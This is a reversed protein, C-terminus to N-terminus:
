DSVPSSSSWELSAVAAAYARIRSCRLADPTALEKLASVEYSVSSADVVETSVGAGGCVLVTAVSCDGVSGAGAAEVSAAPVLEVELEEAGTVPDEDVRAGAVM